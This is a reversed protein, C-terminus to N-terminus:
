PQTLAHMIYRAVLIFNNKLTQQPLRKTRQSFQPKILVNVATRACIQIGICTTHQEFNVFVHQGEM